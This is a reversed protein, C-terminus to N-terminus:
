DDDWDEDDDWNTVQPQDVGYNPDAMSYERMHGVVPKNAVFHGVQKVNENRLLSYLTKAVPLHGPVAGIIGILVGAEQETLTLTFTPAPRLVDLKM